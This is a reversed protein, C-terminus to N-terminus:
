SFLSLIWDLIRNVFINIFGPSDATLTAYILLFIVFGVVLFVAIVLTETSLMGKRM